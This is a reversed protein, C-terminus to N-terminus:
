WVVTKLAEPDNEIAPPRPMAINLQEYWDKQHRFFTWRNVPGDVWKYYFGYPYGQESPPVYDPCLGRAWKIDYEYSLSFLFLHTAQSLLQRPVYVPEQTLGILGVNRGGGRQFVDLLPKGASRTSPVVSVYEDIVIIKKGQLYAANIIAQAQTVVDLDNGAADKSDIRFYFANDVLSTQQDRSSAYNRFGWERWAVLDNPDGKTEIVWVEWETNMLSMAITGALVTALSTKGARTKAVFAYRDNPKFTNAM